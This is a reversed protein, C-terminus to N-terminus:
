LITRLANLITQLVNSTIQHIIAAIAPITATYIIVFRLKSLHTLLYLSVLHRCAMVGFIDKQFIKLNNKYRTCRLTNKNFYYIGSIKFLKPYNQSYFFMWPLGHSGHSNDSAVYIPRVCSLFTLSLYIM